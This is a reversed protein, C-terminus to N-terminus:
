GVAARTFQILWLWWSPRLFFSALALALLSFVLGSWALAPRSLRTLWHPAAGAPWAVAAVIGLLRLALLLHFLALFLTGFAHKLVYEVHSGYQDILTGVSQRAFSPYWDSIQGASVQLLYSAMGCMGTLLLAQVLVTLGHSRAVVALGALVVGFSFATAVNLAALVSDAWGAFLRATFTAVLLLALIIAFGASADTRDVGGHHHHNTTRNGISYRNGTGGHGIMVGTNTGVTQQISIGEPGVSRAAASGKALGMATLIVPLLMGWIAGLIPEVFVTKVLELPTGELARAAM